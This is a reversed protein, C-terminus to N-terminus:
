DKILHYLGLRSYILQFKGELGQLHENLHTEADFIFTIGKPAQNWAPYFEDSYGFLYVNRIGKSELVEKLQILATGEGCGWDMIYIPVNKDTRRNDLREVFGQVDIANNIFSLPTSTKKWYRPTVLTPNNKENRIIRQTRLKDIKKPSLSTALLAGGPLTEKISPIINIQSRIYNLRAEKIENRIRSNGFYIERKDSRSKAGLLKLVDKLEKASQYIDYKVQEYDRELKDWFMNTKQMDKRLRPKLEYPVHIVDPLGEGGLDQVISTSEMAKLFIEDYSELDYGEQKAEESTLLDGVDLVVVENSGKTLGTDVLFGNPKAILGHALIEKYLKFYDQLLTNIEKFQAPINDPYREGKIDRIRDILPIAEEQIVAFPIVKKAGEVFIELNEAVLYGAVLPMTGEQQGLRDQFAVYKNRWVSENSIEKVILDNGEITGRYVTAQSGSKFPRLNNEPNSLKQRLVSLGAKEIEADLQDPDIGRSGLWRKIPLSASLRGQEYAWLLYEPLDQEPIDTIMAQNNDKVNGNLFQYGRRNFANIFTKSIQAITGPQLYRQYLYQSYTFNIAVPEIGNQFITDVLEDVRKEIVENSVPQKESFFAIADYDFTVIAKGIAKGKFKKVGNFVNEQGYVEKLRGERLYERVGPMEDMTAPLFPRVFILRGSLLASQKLYAVWNGIELSYLDSSRADDHTDFNVLNVNSSINENKLLWETWEYVTDHDYTVTVPISKQGNSLVKVQKFQKPDNIEFIKEPPIKYEFDRVPVLGQGERSIKYYSVKRGNQREVPLYVAEEVDDYSIQIHSNKSLLNKWESDAKLSENTLLTKPYLSLKESLAKIMPGFLALMSSQLNVELTLSTSDLKVAQNLDAMMAASPSTINVSLNVGGSFYKRPITRNTTADREEKILNFTGKKFATLYQDYIAQKQANPDKIDIGKTKKQDVYVKQLISDKIKKKYWAALILSNYVQRLQAFNQGENVEKTLQPIVVDRVVESVQSSKPKNNKDLALYDEELMVKLSSQVVYATGVKANEYVVAKDPVIWVKNFTNITVDAGFKQSAQEYVKKWFAKGVEGEPYILSATIQKLLYDQALLDRGMDTQGFSEPVIRDKEYPSLNVWLDTEPVTLSAMFYRILKASEDKLDQDALKSEGKDLIFEFQFPDSTNIKLGKLIAPNFSSSLPVMTGPTPLLLEQAEVPLPGISTILFAAIILNILPTRM